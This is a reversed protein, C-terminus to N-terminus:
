PQSPPFLVQTQNGAVVHCSVITQLELGLPESAKKSRHAGPVHTPCLYVHM